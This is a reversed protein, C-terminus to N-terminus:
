QIDVITVGDGGQEPEPHRIEMAINYERLKKRVAKRLIGSGKGHIIRLQSASSVLAQDMFEEVVKLAEEFRMGRIDIKSEFNDDQGRTDTQVSKAQRLELPAKAHKLDRLNVTMRMLGMQVVAKNKEISEVTGTAGGSRLRVFDGQRIPGEKLDAKSEQPQYYVAERLDDVEKSLEQREERVQQAMEKARELNKEEKIERILKEFDRNTHSSQQLAQEKSELKMKKRRYELDRHLQEYNKILKSLQKEREDLKSLQEELEQKERQLDILLQDVAKENKGTRHKAYDLLKKNLGSKQAIEFAFSSGPRGVKFEYTPSLTDKDFTMSANVVGQNKFAYIKLNSYHTTILGYAKKKRLDNLIAEAIAGGIKPDTGSGFEDILFLTKPDANEVFHKMNHLRSSYTSLDDEISQQDGIDAFVKEFIGMQSNEDVPILMGAQVMLQILGVSKMTISKGGANPGSLVVIKNDKFLKLDFPTTPRGTQQNHLYLLPHYAEQMWLNPHAALKPKIGRMRGALRAKAQVLDFYTLVGLYERFHGVYPRLLASLEKLIRYIERRQDTELEFIDNNIQIVGEPEIFATKGTTSEDHIIGRIKRKHESPVSLVRRGNRFSEVNDTLWGRSRYDNIIKRFVQDLERQKSGIQRSIRQLEPSADPRIQGEEDIVREIAEVLGEDFTVPRIIDFLTPYAERRDDTFYRFIERLLLMITNIRQLSEVPLVYDPVELYKLDESIDTYAAIPLRSNQERGRKFELVEELRRDIVQPDTLPQIKKVAKRGLDGMCENEVLKLVKDFELKSFIDKPQLQM